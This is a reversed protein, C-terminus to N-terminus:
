RLQMKDVLETTTPGLARPDDAPEQAAVFTRVVEPWKASLYPGRPSRKAASGNAIPRANAGSHGNKSRTQACQRACQLRHWHTGISCVHGVSIATIYKAQSSAFFAFSLASRPM